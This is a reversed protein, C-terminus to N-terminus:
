DLMLKLIITDSLDEWPALNGDQDIADFQATAIYYLEDGVLAGTTPIAYLPHDRDLVQIGTIRNMEDSLGIRIVRNVVRDGERHGTIAVLDDEYLYLGDGYGVIEGEPIPLRLM